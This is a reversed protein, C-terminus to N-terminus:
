GLDGPLQSLALEDSSVEHKRDRALLPVGDNSEGRLNYPSGVRDPLERPEELVRGLAVEVLRGSVAKVVSRPSERREHLESCGPAADLWQGKLEIRIIHEVRLM